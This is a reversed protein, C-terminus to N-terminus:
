QTESEQIDSATLQYGVPALDTKAFAAKIRGEVRFPSYMREDTLALGERFKVYVIQNPPPPPVHICAGFYPVLVFENMKEADFDLPVLYGELSVDTDDIENVLVNGEGEIVRLAKEIEDDTMQDIRINLEAAAQRAEESLPPTLDTWELPKIEVNAAPPEKAISEGGTFALLASGLAVSTVLGAVAFFRKM